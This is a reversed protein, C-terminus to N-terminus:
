VGIAAIGIAREELDPRKVLVVRGFALEGQCGPNAGPSGADLAPVIGAASDIREKGLGISRRRQRRRADSDVTQLDRALCGGPIVRTARSRQALAVLRQCMEALQMRAHEITEANRTRRDPELHEEIGHGRRARALAA